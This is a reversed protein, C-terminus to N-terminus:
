VVDGFNRLPSQPQLLAEPHEHDVGEDKPMEHLWSQLLVVGRDLWKPVQKPLGISTSIYGLSLPLQTPGGQQPSQDLIFNVFEISISWALKLWSGNSLGFLVGWTANYHKLNTPALLNWVEETGAFGNLANHVLASSPILV